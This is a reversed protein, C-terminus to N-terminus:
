IITDLRDNDSDFDLPNAELDYEEKNGVGDEDADEDCDLVGDADTDADCPNYGLTYLEQYDSLGDDDTDVKNENSGFYIELYNQLGDCDNDDLDLNLKDFNKNGNCDIILEESYCETGLWVEFRFRDLGCIFAFDNNEWQANPIINTEFIKIDKKDSM